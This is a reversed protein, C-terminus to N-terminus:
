WWPRVATLPRFARSALMLHRAAPRPRVVGNRLLPREWVLYPSRGPWPLCPLVSGTVKMPLRPLLRRRDLRPFRLDGEVQWLYPTASAPMTLRDGPVPTTSVQRGQSAIAAMAQRSFENAGRIQAQLDLLQSNHEARVAELQQEHQLRQAELAAKHTSGWEVMAREFSARQAAIENQMSLSVAERAASERHRAADADYCKAQWDQTMRLQSELTILDM